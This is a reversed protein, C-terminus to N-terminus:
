MAKNESQIKSLKTIVFQFIPLQFKVFFPVCMCGLLVTAAQTTFNFDDLADANKADFSVGHELKLIRHEFM